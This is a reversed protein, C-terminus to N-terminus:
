MTLDSSTMKAAYAKKTAQMASVKVHPWQPMDSDIRLKGLMESVAEAHALNRLLRRPDM